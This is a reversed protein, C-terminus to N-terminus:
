DQTLILLSEVAGVDIEMDIGKNGFYFSYFDSIFTMVQVAIADTYGVTVGNFDGPVGRDIGSCVAIESVMAYAEDGYIINCVNRYELTDAEDMKFPVKATVAVYDGTTVNVGTNSLDPPTPNLDGVNPEFPTSYTVGDVVTRYESQPITASLDLVRLYYAVYSVGDHEEIRRLRYRSRETATLDNDLTRLIFPLQNYLAAHRPLHQIPEPKYIGGVGLTATHGGNGIAIYNVAPVDTAAMAINAHINFKENLTTHELITLPRKLYQATQLSASYVTRIIKKM